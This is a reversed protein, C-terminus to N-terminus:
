ITKNVHKSTHYTSYEDIFIATIVCLIGIIKFLTIQEGLLPIAIIITFIPQLSMILGVKVVDKIYHQGVALLLFCLATAILGLYCLAIINITNWNSPFPERLLFVFIFAYLSCFINQFVAMQLPNEGKILQNGVVLQIACFIACFVTLLMGINWVFQFNDSLNFFYVGILAIFISIINSILIKSRYMMSNFFPILVLNLSTIFASVSSDLTKLGYTQTAFVLFVLFGMISSKKVTRLAIPMKIILFILLLSFLTRIGIMYFPSIGADVLIKQAVFASGWFFSALYLVGLGINEKKHFM